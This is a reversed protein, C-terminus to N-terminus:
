RRSRRRGRRTEGKARLRADPTLHMTLNEALERKGQDMLEQALHPREPLNRLGLRRTHPSIESLSDMDDQLMRRRKPM